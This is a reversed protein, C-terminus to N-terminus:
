FFINFIFKNVNHNLYDPKELMLIEKGNKNHIKLKSNVSSSRFSRDQKKGHSEHNISYLPQGSM